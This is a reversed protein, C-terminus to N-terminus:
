AARLLLSNGSFSLPTNKPLQSFAKDEAQGKGWGPLEVLWLM